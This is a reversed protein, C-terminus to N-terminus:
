LSFMLVLKVKTNLSIFCLFYKIAANLHHQRKLTYKIITSALEVLAMQLTLAPVVMALYSSWGLSLMDKVNWM